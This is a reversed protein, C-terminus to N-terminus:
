RELIGFAQIIGGGVCMQSKNRVVTVWRADPRSCVTDYGQM